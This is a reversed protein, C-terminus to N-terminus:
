AENNSLSRVLRAVESGFQAELEDYSTNTDELTDHLLAAIIVEEKSTLWSVTLSVRICHQVYDEGGRRKQGSHKETAFQLAKETAEKM